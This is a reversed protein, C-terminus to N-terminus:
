RIEIKTKDNAFYINNKIKCLHQMIHSRRLLNKTLLMFHMERRYVYKKNENKKKINLIANLTDIARFKITAYKVKTSVISVNSLRQLM